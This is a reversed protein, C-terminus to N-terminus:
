IPRSRLKTRYSRWSVTGLEPVESYLREKSFVAKKKLFRWSLILSHYIAAYRCDFPDIRAQQSGTVATHVLPLRSYLLSFIFLSKDKAPYIVLYMRSRYANNCMRYDLSIFNVTSFVLFMIQVSAVKCPSTFRFGEQHPRHVVESHCQRPRYGNWHQVSM